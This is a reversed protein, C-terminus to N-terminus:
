LFKYRENLEVSRPHLHSIKAEVSKIRQYHKLLVQHICKKCIDRVDESRTLFILVIDDPVSRLDCLDFRTVNSIFPYIIGNNGKIQWQKRTLTWKPFEM